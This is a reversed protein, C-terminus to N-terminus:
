TLLDGKPTGLRWLRRPTYGRKAFRPVGMCPLLNTFCINSLANDGDATRAPGASPSVKRGGLCIPPEGWYACFDM